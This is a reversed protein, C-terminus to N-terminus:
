RVRSPQYSPALARRSSPLVVLVIILVAVVALVASLVQIGATPGLFVGPVGTLFNLVCVIITAWYSWKKMTWLGVAVVLGVIGLVIGSYLIFAPPEEVGPFLLMWPWPFGSLSLIVLLIAAITV